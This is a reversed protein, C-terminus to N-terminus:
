NNRAFKFMIYFDNSNSSCIPTSSPVPFSTTKNVGYANGVNYLEDKHFRTIRTLAKICASKPIYTLSIILAGGPANFSLAGDSRPVISVAICGGFPNVGANNCWANTKSTGMLGDQPFFLKQMDSWNTYNSSAYQTDHVMSAPILNRANAMTELIMSILRETKRYDDVTRVAGWIGGIVGGVVALVITAEILNFGMRTKHAVADSISRLLSFGKKDPPNHGVAEM